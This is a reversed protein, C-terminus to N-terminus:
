LTDYVYYKADRPRNRSDYTRYKQEKVLKIYSLKECEGNVEEILSFDYKIKASIVHGRQDYELEDHPLMYTFLFIRDIRSEHYINMRHIYADIGSSQLTRKKAVFIIGIKIKKGLFSLKTTDDGPQRRTIDLLFDIFDMTERQYKVEESTGYLTDGLEKFEFLMIRTFFGREDIKAIINILNSMQSDSKCKPDIINTIFYNYASTYRGTLLIKKTVYYDIAMRVNPYLINKAKPLLAQPVFACCADTINRDMNHEKRLIIVINDEKVYSAITDVNKWKIRVGYPIIGESETNIIKAAKTIRYDIETSIIRKENCYGIWSLIKYFINSWKDVLEPHKLIYVFLLLLIALGGYPIMINITM